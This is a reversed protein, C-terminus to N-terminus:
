GANCIEMCVAAVKETADPQALARAANAMSLLQARNDTLDSVRRYLMGTDLDKQQILIAAGAESLWSANMTQHDDVAYPFPILIAAIGAVALECVTTAGARCIVLDADAYATAMDNIFPLVQCNEDVALDRQKYWGVTEEFNKNGTQHVIRPRDPPAFRALMEPLIKNIAVAGLSGGLILIRLPGSRGAIRQDPATIAQIEKRVPNGTTLLRNSTRLKPFTGPFAQMVKAAIMALMKNSFGAIANQEHIVLTHGSLRAAVGGPGTVYGGMGLVCCPQVKRLVELAQWVARILMLPALLLGVVGKGRVGTVSLFNLKIGTGKLVQVELGKDTGLWEIHYGRERLHEAITLAPFIHGGTGGAMILVTASTATVHPINSM